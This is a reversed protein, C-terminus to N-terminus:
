GSATAIEDLSSIFASSKMIGAPVRNPGDIPSPDHYIQDTDHLIGCNECPKSQKKCYRRDDGIQGDQLWPLLPESCPIDKDPDKDKLPIVRVNDLVPHTSESCPNIESHKASVKVDDGIPNQYYNFDSVKDSSHRLKYKQLLRSAESEDYAKIDKNTSGDLPPTYYHDLDVTDEHVYIPGQETSKYNCKNNDSKLKYNSGGPTTVNYLDNLRDQKRQMKEVIQGECLKDPIPSCKIGPTGAAICRTDPIPSCKAEIEAKNEKFLATAAAEKDRCKKMRFTNEKHISANFAQCSCFEKHQKVGCDTTFSTDGLVSDLTAMCDRQICKIFKDGILTDCSESSSHSAWVKNMKNGCEPSIISIEYPVYDRGDPLKNGPPPSSKRFFTCDRPIAMAIDCDEQFGETNLLVLLIFFGALLLWLKM